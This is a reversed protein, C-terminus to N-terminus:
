VAITGRIDRNKERVVLLSTKCIELEKAFYDGVNPIQESRGINIWTQNFIKTREKEFYSASIYPDIPLPGKGLEPYRDHWKERGLAM